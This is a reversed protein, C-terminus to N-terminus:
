DYGISQLNYFSVIQSQLNTPGRCIVVRCDGIQVRCDTIM